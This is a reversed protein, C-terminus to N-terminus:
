EETSASSEEVGASVSAMAEGEITALLSPEETTADASALDPVGNAHPEQHDGDTLRREQNTTRLELRPLLSWDPLGPYITSQQTTTNQTANIQAGTENAIFGPWALDLGSPPPGPSSSTGNPMTQYQVPGLTESSSSSRGGATVGAPSLSGNPNTVVGAPSLSGNPDAYRLATIARSFHVPEVTLGPTFRVGGDRQAVNSLPSPLTDAVAPRAASTYAPVQLPFTNALAQTPSSRTPAQTPFSRATTPSRTSFATAPSSVSFNTTPSFTAAPSSVSVNTASFPIPFPVSMLPGAVAHSHAVLRALIGDVRFKLRLLPSDVLVENIHQQIEQSLALLFALEEQIYTPRPAARSFSTRRLVSRLEIYSIEEEMRSTFMLLM